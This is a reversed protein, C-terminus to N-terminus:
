KGNLSLIDGFVLGPTIAVKKKNEESKTPKDEFIVSFGRIDEALAESIRQNETINESLVALFSPFYFFLSRNGRALIVFCSSLESM